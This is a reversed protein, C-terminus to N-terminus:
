DGFFARELWQPDSVDRSDVDPILSKIEAGIVKFATRMQRRTGSRAQAVVNWIDILLQQSEDPEYVVAAHPTACALSM